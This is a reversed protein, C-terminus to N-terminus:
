TEGRGLAVGTGVTVALGVASGVAVAAGVAVGAGVAAAAGVAVRRAVTAGVGPGHSGDASAARIVAQPPAAPFRIASTSSVLAPGVVQVRRAISLGCSTSPLPDTRISPGVGVPLVSTVIAGPSPTVVM